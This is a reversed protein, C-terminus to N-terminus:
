NGMIPNSLTTRRLITTGLPGLSGIWDNAGPGNTVKVAAVQIFEGNRTNSAPGNNGIKLGLRRSSSSDWLMYDGNAYHQTLSFSAQAELFDDNDAILTNDSDYVRYYTYTQTSSDRAELWNIKMEVRLWEGVPLGSVQFKKGEGWDYANAQALSWTSMTWTLSGANACNLWWNESNHHDEFFHYDIGSGSVNLIKFYVRIFTYDGSSNLVGGEELFSVGSSGDVWIGLYNQGEPGGSKVELHGATVYHYTCNGGDMDSDIVSFDRTIDDWFYSGSTGDLQPCLDGTGQDWNVELLDTAFCNPVFLLVVFFYIFLKIRDV